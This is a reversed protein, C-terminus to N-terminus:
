KEFIHVYKYVLNLSLYVVKSVNKSTRTGKTRSAWFHSWKFHYILKSKLINSKQIQIGRDSSFSRRSLKPFDSQMAEMLPTVANNFTSSFLWQPDCFIWCLNNFKHSIIRSNKKSFVAIEDCNPQWASLFLDLIWCHQFIFSIKHQFNFM